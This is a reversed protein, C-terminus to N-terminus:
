VRTIRIIKAPSTATGTWVHTGDFCLGCPDNEGTALTYVVYTGDAPNMKILKGPSTDLAAWVHTGDFCLVWSKNEGTALTFTETKELQYRLLPSRHWPHIWPKAAHAAIKTDVQAESLGAAKTGFDTM